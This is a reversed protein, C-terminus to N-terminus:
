AAVKAFWSVADAATVSYTTDESITFTGDENDTVIADAKVSVGAREISVILTDFAADTVLGTDIVIANAVAEGGSAAHSGSDYTVGEDDTFDPPVLNEILDAIEVRLQAAAGPNMEDLYTNTAVAGHSTDPNQILALLATVKAVNNGAAYDGIVHLGTAYGM